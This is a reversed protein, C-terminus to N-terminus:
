DRILLEDILEALFRSDIVQQTVSLPQRMSNFENPLEFQTPWSESATPSTEYIYVFEGDELIHLNNNTTQGHRNYGPHWQSVFNVHVNNSKNRALASQKRTNPMSMPMHLPHM